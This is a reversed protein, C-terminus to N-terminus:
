FWKPLRLLLLLESVQSSKVWDVVESNQTMMKEMVEPKCKMIRFLHAKQLM